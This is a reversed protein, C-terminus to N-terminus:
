SQNDRPPATSGRLILQVNVSYHPLSEAGTLKTLLLQAANEGMEEAPVDITTLPPNSHSAFELNDFGVISVDNPVTLGQDSCEHLAGIALVDNGCIIATPRLTGCSLLMACAERGGSFSYSREVIMEDPLRIGHLSLEKRIGLLRLATRDNDKTIGSIVGIHRHGINVLYRAIEAAAMSNDFGVTTNTSAQDYVYTNVFPIDFKKLLNFIEPRHTDGVLILAEAGCEILQRSKQYEDDLDYDHTAILTSIGAASLRNQAADVMRAYIAYNLTPILIGVMNSRQSRLARAAHNRVYGLQAMAVEIQARKDPLVKEPNNLVRSVTAPACGALKAVDTVRVRNAMQFRNKKVVSM